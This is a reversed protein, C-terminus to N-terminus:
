VGMLECLRIKLTDSCNDLVLAVRSDSCYGLIRAFDDDTLGALYAKAPEFGPKAWAEEFGKILPNVTKLKSKLAEVRASLDPNATETV